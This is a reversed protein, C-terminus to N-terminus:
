AAMIGGILAAGYGQQPVGVVRAGLRDAIERSADSSGNDAVVVEAHICLDRAVAQAARICAGLTAAENLCPLVISLEIPRERSERRSASAEKIGGSIAQM